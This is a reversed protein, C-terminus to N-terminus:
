DSAATKAAKDAPSPGAGKLRVIQQLADFWFPAGFLTAMATILWGAVLNFRFGMAGSGGGFFKKLEPTTWGLPIGLNNLTDMQMAAANQNTLDIKFDGVAKAVMPRAWMAQGITIASINLLAAMLLAIIFGWMQTRRKYSGGVRDMANDFWDSLDKGVNELIGGSRDVIGNLLARLQADHKVIENNDIAQKMSATGGSALGIIDIMAASFQKPDIYAPRKRAREERVDQVWLKMRSWWRPQADKASALIAPSSPQAAGSTLAPQARKDTGAERPNVLAHNYLEFALGRFNQDNLLDKVGELLTASRLKLFSAIAEVTSSVALSLALFTFILGIAVDLITSNFM